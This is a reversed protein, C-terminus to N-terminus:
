YKSRKPKATETGPSLAPSMTAGCIHPRGLGPISGVDGASAPLDKVGAGVFGRTEGKSECERCKQCCAHPTKGWM